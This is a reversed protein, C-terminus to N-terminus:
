ASTDGRVVKGVTSYNADICDFDAIDRYSLETRDYMERIVDNRYEAKVKKIEKRKEENAEERRILEFDSDGETKMREVFDYEEDEHPIKKFVLHEGGFMNDHYSIRHTFDNVKIFYPKALGRRKVIILYDSLRLLEKDLQSTSPLTCVNLVNRNRLKSWAEILTKNDRTMWNRRNAIAEIEDLLVAYGPPITRDNYDKYYKDVNWYAGQEFANWKNGLEGCIYRCLQIALTSKGIGTASNQGIIVVKADDDSKLKNTITEGFSGFHMRSKPM